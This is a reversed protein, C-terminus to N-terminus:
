KGLCFRSFIRALAEEAYGDGLARSFAALADRLEEAALELRGAGELEALALRCHGLAGALELDERRRGPPGAERCASAVASRLADLGTLSVASAALISLPGMGAREALEAASAPTVASPLDSKNLVLVVPGSFRKAFALTEGDLPLSADVVWVAVDGGGPRRSDRAAAGEGPGNPGCGPNDSLVLRVGDWEAERRLSDRTTSAEPSVLVEDRGLLANFLASKGANVPGALAAHPFGGGATEGAGSVGVGEAALASVLEGLSALPDTGPEEEGFDLAAEVAAAAAMARDRWAAIRKASEDGLRDLAARAEADGDARIADEVAEAQGLSLRGNRFARFTFEGPAAPRAGAEVAAALAASLIAPSGPLHIEATDERTYSAPGPMLFFRAPCSYATKDKRDAAVQRRLPLAALRDFVGRGCRALAEPDAALRGAIALANPGSLRLIGVLGRGPPSGIQAIDDHAFYQM